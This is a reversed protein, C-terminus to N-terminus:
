QVTLGTVKVNGAAAKTVAAVLRAPDIPKVIWDVIGAHEDLELWSERETGSVIVIPLHSLEQDAYLEHAFEMGNGEPLALDLTMAAYEATKLQSRAEEIRYVVDAAFGERTLMQQSLWAVRDEDECILVKPGTDAAGKGALEEEDPAGATRGAAGQLEVWVTTGEGPNSEFGIAGGMQEIIQKSIHLGLGTGGKERTSSADVQFFKNFLRDACEKPIGPGHDRVSIRVGGNQAPAASLQVEGQKPSFKVANSLLNNLVQILRDRDTKVVPAGDLPRLDIRIAHQDAFGRIGEAAEDLLPALPEPRMDFRMTGSAIKDIDLIDNILLILRECNKYARDILTQAM